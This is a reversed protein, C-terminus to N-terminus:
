QGSNSVDRLHNREVMEGTTKILYKSPVASGAAYNYDTHVRYNNDYITTYVTLDPIFEYMESLDQLEGSVKNADSYTYKGYNSLLVKGLWSVGGPNTYVVPQGSILAPYKSNHVATNSFLAEDYPIDYRYVGDLGYPSTNLMHNRRQSMTNLFNNIDESTVDRMPLKAHGGSKGGMVTLTNTRMPTIMDIDRAIFSCTKEVLLDDISLVVGEDVLEVGYIAMNSVDGYENAFTITIDFPPLQDLMPSFSTYRYDGGNWEVDVSYSQIIEYLVERDFMTFVMSGALVRAGRTIGVPYTHGLARVPVKERHVSYSLTQANALVLPSTQNDNGVVHVVCTIDAGSFSRTPSIYQDIIDYRNTEKTYDDLTPDKISRRVKEMELKSQEKLFTSPPITLVDEDRLVLTQDPLKFRDATPDISIDVLPTTSVPIVQVSKSPTGSINWLRGKKYSPSFKEVIDRQSDTLNSLIDGLEDAM